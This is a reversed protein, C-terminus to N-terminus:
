SEPAQDLAVRVSRTDALGEDMAALHAAGTAYRSELFPRLQFLRLAGDVFGFEVDAAAPEGEDDVIPPFREPLSAAFDILQRIEDPQLVADSGSAPVELLGGAPNPVRRTPATATALVRVAGTHRDIRLNEAAQGDVAGGIGENVAVSLEGPSGTDINRTVLVGSKESATSELLLISTYVHEPDSMLSQRWAFARATFPSAWVRRIGDMLAAEGVVNPLTLNLGAGTFGALDEVNTDSRIFLGPLEDGFVDRLDALLQDRFAGDVPTELLRAYLEARFEEYAIAQEPDGPDVPGLEEFRAVMWERLTGDGYPQELAQAKFLGFPIALGNSVAEPYAARLGGLKAAKPGVTRGSDDARLGDLPLFDDEDLQLKDLDPRILAADEDGTGADFVADWQPGDAVLEVLGAASVALVVAQGDHAALTELWQEGVTANPIGLNRALLQVHSLPNGEGATLIGRVPPLDSVTEPLVYIGDPALEEVDALDPKVRLIGRALGPNLATFATGAETDFIRHRVGALRGADASLVKLADAFLLLPSARLQDQIFRMATPELEGLKQMAGLFHMRLRQTGWGPVRNLTGLVDRYTDLDVHEADLRALAAELEGHLRPNILGAGYTAQGAAALVVVHERRSLAGLSPRLEAARAFFDTEVALGLDLAALRWRDSDTVPIAEFLGALLGASAQLQALPADAAALEGRAQEVAERLPAPPDGALFEDLQEGLPPAAYVADIERALALYPARQDPALGAAYDRVRAADGADPAGHIKARLARFGPDRDSLSASQQRVRDVSASDVGHPLLRAGIRWAPFGAGSWWPDDAMGTLLARAGEREDEEQIAGRYFLARRFIWGDDAGVLFREVLLQAYRERATDGALWRDSELGALLNAVYYGNQRLLLTRESWQGHQVGGGHDACAYAKPPLVQGDNCFWRIRQFPGRDSAKMAQIWQRYDQSDDAVSSSVAAMALLCVTMVARAFFGSIAEHKSRM